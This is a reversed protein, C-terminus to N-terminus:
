STAPSSGRTKSSNVGDQKEQPGPTDPFNLYAFEGHYKRAAADRVKAAEEATAYAGLYLQCGDVSIYAAFKYGRKSVGRYGTTSDKRLNQNYISQAPTAIRLNDRRYDLPNRNIHDVHMGDPVDLLLRGFTYMTYPVVSSNCVKFQQYDKDPHKYITGTWDGYTQLDEADLLLIGRAIFDKVLM